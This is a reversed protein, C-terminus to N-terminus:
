SGGEAIAGELAGGTRVRPKWAAPLIQLPHGDPDDLYVCDPDRPYTYVRCGEAELGARIESADGQEVQLAIHDIERGGPVEAQTESIFFGQDGCRLFCVTETEHGVELGLTEVYFRKARQLNQVRLVVHDVRIAKLALLSMLGGKAGPRSSQVGM